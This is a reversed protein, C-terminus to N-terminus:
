EEVRGLSRLAAAEDERSLPEHARTAALYSDLAETSSAPAYGGDRTPAVVAFNVAWGIDSHCAVSIVTSRNASDIEFERCLSGTGDRFTAVARIRDTSGALVTEAGSAVQGLAESLPSNQGAVELGHPQNQIAFGFFYGGFGFAVAVLSAALPMIWSGQPRPMARNDGAGFAVVRARQSAHSPVSRRRAEDIMRQVSQSLRDPVPEDLVPMLAEKVQIRTELFLAVQSAIDPQMANEIAAATADDLEGDAFAMLTEDAFECRIM